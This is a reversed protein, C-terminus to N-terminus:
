GVESGDRRSMGDGWGGSGEGDRDGERGRSKESGGGSKECGGWGDDGM